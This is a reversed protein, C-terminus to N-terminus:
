TISTVHINPYGGAQVYRSLYLSYTYATTYVNSTSSVKGSFYTDKLRCGLLFLFMSTVDYRYVQSKKHM